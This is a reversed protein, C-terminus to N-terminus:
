AAEQALARIPFKNSLADRAITKVDEPFDSTLMWVLYDKSVRRLPVGNWKKGFAICAEGNRWVVKGSSDVWGIDRPWLLAHLEEVTNPLAPEWTAELMAALVETTWRIDAMADHADTIQRKLYKEVLAKLTRPSLIEDIRKTDLVRADAYSWPRGVRKFEAELFRLDFRVNQGIFDCGCFGQILTGALDGFTPAGAVMGNTIKHTITAEAPIPLQPDVFTTWETIEIVQGTAMCTDCGNPYQGHCAGCAATRAKQVGIQIIRDIGLATGTTELDVCVLPRTIKLRTAIRLLADSM